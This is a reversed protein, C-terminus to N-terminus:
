KVMLKKIILGDHTYIHVIYAGPRFQDTNIRTEKQEYARSFIVRGTIDVIRIRTITSNAKVNFFRDAPNPYLHACGSEFEDIYTGDGLVGWTNEIITDSVIIIERDPAGPWEAGDWGENLFYKYFYDGTSLTLIKEWIMSDDIRTMTQQEMDSGPEAWEFMSGTIYVVDHDPNFDETNEMNIHFTVEYEIVPYNHLGPEGQWQLYPYTINEVNSWIDAFDWNNFHTQVLMESTSLGEGMASSEQGSTETNWYNNQFDYLPNEGQGFIIGVLGGINEEGNVEGISYNNVVSTMATENIAVRGILGGALNGNVNGTAYSDIMKSSLILNGALGGVLNEASVNSTSYSQSITSNAALTGVLGGAYWGANVYGSSMSNDLTSEHQMSGAIGGAWYNGINVNVVVNCKINALSSNNNAVYVLGGALSNATVTSSTININSIHTNDVWGALVAARENAVIHNNQINLNTITGNTVYGFLSQSNKEPRNITIGSITYGDGNYTGMFPSGLQSIPLWGEGVNWPAVGLDIDATQKYHASLDIRVTFLEGANSVLYPNEETGEGQSFGPTAFTELSLPNSEQDGSYLATLSYTFYVYNELGTDTFSLTEAGLTQILNGDRYLKFGTQAETSPPLWSLSIMGDGTTASFSQPPLTTVPYNFDGPTQQWQLFPYTEGEIIDWIDNFDWSVFTNEAIMELTTKGEGGFSESQGSTEMNWYSHTITNTNDGLGILGGLDTQISGGVFGASYSNIVQSNYSIWGVLGGVYRLGSVNGTAYSNEILGGELTGSLGGISFGAADINAASFCTYFESGYSIGVLGGAWNGSAVVTGTSWCNSLTSFDSRGSLIGIGFSSNIVANTITINQLYTNYTYGFLGGYTLEQNDITLKDIIYGNGDYNGSFRNGWGGIPQWGQGENWPAVGLDIDAIQMFYKDTYYGLFLRINNLHEATEILWPDEQTGSGGAFYNGYDPELIISISLDFNTVSFDGSYSHYGEKEVIYVYYGAQAEFSAFGNDDTFLIIPESKKLDPYYYTKQAAGSNVTNDAYSGHTCPSIIIEGSESVMYLSSKQNIEHETINKDLLFESKKLQNDAEKTQLYVSIMANEVPNYDEDFVNFTITHYEETDIIGWVNNVELDGTVTVMRNPDGPWEGGDWGENIFYKYQYNGAELELTKTWIMSEDVRTMFQNEILDLDGPTAWGFMSGTIYVVDHDPTFNDANTMDVNFTVNFGVPPEFSEEFDDAFRPVLQLNQQFQIVVGTINLPVTPIEAGIYDVDWFDTRVVFMNEGDTINYNVGNSFVQGDDIDIFTVNHLTILKAQDDSTVEDIMFITPDVPTNQTAPETNEAPQFRVMNNWINIQGVVNTIVDYLEYETTIIGPQDDILIAATEDQLFKRNRFGDMAVIVADGTYRYLTGDGPKTRLEALTAVNQIIEEPILVEDIVHVVGNDAELNVTTIKADNIFVDEGDITVMLEQGLLTTLVQGDELEEALLHGPYVHYLLIDTLFGEPNDLLDDLFGDPLADFADDDPAFVTFPGAGSLGNQLTAALIAALLTEHNDSEIIVDVVTYTPEGSVMVNDIIVFSRYVIDGVILDFTSTTTFAFYVTGSLGTIDHEVYRLSNAGMILNDDEDFQPVFEIPDGLNTWPGDPSDSYKLQFTSHGLVEGEFTVANNVGELYFSIWQDQTTIDVGHTVLMKEGQEVRGHLLASVGDAIPWQQTATVWNPDNRSWGAPPFVLEPIGFDDFEFNEFDEAFTYYHYVKLNTGVTNNGSFDDDPLVVQVTFDGYIDPVWTFQVFESEGGLELEGTTYTSVVVGNAVLSVEVTGPINGNCYVYAGILVEDGPLIGFTPFATLNEVGFDVQLVEGVYVDDIAMQFGDTYEYVFALQVDKGKFANLSIEVPEDFYNVNDDSGAYTLLTTWAGDSKIRVYYSTLWGNAEYNQNWVWYTLKVDGETESIHFEPTIAWTFDPATYGIAMSAQGSYVYDQWNAFGYDASNRFWKPQEADTVPEDTLSTTRKQVWGTPLDGGVTPEEFGEFFFVSKSNVLPNIRGEKTLWKANEAAPIIHKDPGLNLGSERQQAIASFVFVFKLVFILTFIKKMHLPKLNNIFNILSVISEM